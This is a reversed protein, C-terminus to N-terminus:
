GWSKIANFNAQSFELRDVLKVASNSLTDIAVFGEPGTVKYGTSTKIFAPIQNVTELKKVIMMKIDIVENHWELAHAFTGAMKGSRLEKLFVDLEKQKKDKGKQSKLKDMKKKYDTTVFDIFSGVAMQKNSFRQGQRIQANIYVKVLKSLTTKGFLKSMSNKDLLGLEKHASALLKKISTMEKKTMTASGSADVFNTDTFWVSSQKKFSNININFQASLDAITDGTYTTHWIVGAKSKLITKALASDLPVAYTITNPTFTVYKEGDITAKKLDEPTFMFDGQYVGKLNMKPFEKLAIKLKDALGGKHNKDIDANTYNIKPTKNFISKSGVFFKGNEPDIGAIIAPAGDVKAQINVSRKSHGELSHAVDDLIRLAEKAGGIGFDFIADEVHELHTLKEEAIYTKFSKMM